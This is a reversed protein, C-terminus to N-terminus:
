LDLDRVARIQTTTEKETMYIKGWGRAWGYKNKESEKPKSGHVGHSYYTSTFAHYSNDWFNWDCYLNMIILERQNPLRYGQPCFRSNILSKNIEEQMQAFTVAPNIIPCNKTAEFKWYPKNQISNEDSYVLNVGDPIRYRICKENLYSLDFTYYNDTVKTKKVYNTPSKTLDTVNDMGLNRVCITELENLKGGWNYSDELSGNSGGEEAWVVIPNNSNTGTRTSSAIHQRWDKPDSSARQEATRTYLRATNQIGDAGIWLGVLQKVSPIYWRIEDADILGNGNNDRNRTLCSYRLYKYAPLLVDEEDVAEIDLFDSWRKGTIFQKGSNALGLEILTNLRGNYDDINGRNETVNYGNNNYPLQAHEDFHEVGFADKLDPHNHNYVTQISRQQITFSSGVETSEKDMSEKTDSLIHMLRMEDRNVFQKWLEGSKIGTIPHEEYYFENIYATVILKGDKDFDSSQPNSEYARKQTKLYAVLEDVYMTKKDSSLYPAGNKDRKTHHPIYRQRKKSYSNNEKSNVRFEIWKFDLGTTIDVGNEHIPSGEGFPTRVYWTVNNAEVNQADFEMVHTTYHADCDIIEQLAITVEGAAGPSNETIGENEDNNTEVELRINDVGNITVNYTYSTNRETAFNGWKANSFDGLHIVYRVNANLTAGEKGPVNKMLLRGTIVVYTSNEPAYEWDGNLGSEDKECRERDSYTNPIKKPPLNNEFMYFSFGYRTNGSETLEREEVNKTHTNFYAGSAYSLDTSNARPMLYSSAPVNFVQWNHLEFTEIGSDDGTKVWFHVKADIRTLKLTESIGSGAGTNINKLVGTMPFFGSREVLQQNLSVVREQLEEENHILGFAEPSLNIMESDVNAIAYISCGTKSITKIKVTGKCLMEGETESDFIDVHWTDDNLNDADPMKNNVDFYRGYIKNGNGDFVFVYLNWVKAEDLPNPMTQRTVVTQIGGKAGFGLCLEVPEGEPVSTQTDILENTCGAFFPLLLLLIYLLRKM